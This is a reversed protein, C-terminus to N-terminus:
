GLAASSKFNLIENIIDFIVSFDIIAYLKHLAKM